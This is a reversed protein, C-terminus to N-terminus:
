RYRGSVPVDHGHHNGGQAPSREGEGELCEGALGPWRILHELDEVAVTASHSPAPVFPNASSPSIQDGEGIVVADRTGVPERSQDHSHVSMIGITGATIKALGVRKESRDLLPPPGSGGRFLDIGTPQDAGTAVDHEAAPTQLSSGGPVAENVVLGKERALIPLQHIV